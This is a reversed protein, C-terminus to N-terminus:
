FFIWLQIHQTMASSGNKEYQDIRKALEDIVAPVRNDINEWVFKVHMLLLQRQSNIAKTTGYKSLFTAGIKLTLIELLKSVTGIKMPKLNIDSHVSKSLLKVETANSNYSAQVDPFSNIAVQAIQVFNIQAPPDSEAYDKKVYPILTAKSPEVSPADQKDCASLLMVSLLLLKKMKGKVLSVDTTKRFTIMTMITNQIEFM